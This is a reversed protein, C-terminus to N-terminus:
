SWDEERERSVAESLPNKSEALHNIAWKSVARRIAQFRHRMRSISRSMLISDSLELYNRCSELYDPHHIPLSLLGLIVIIM